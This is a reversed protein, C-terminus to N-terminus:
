RLDIGERGLEKFRENLAHPLVDREELDFIAGLTLFEQTERRSAVGGIAFYRIWLDDHSLGARQRAEDLYLHAM